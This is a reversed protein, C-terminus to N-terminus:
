LIPPLLRFFDEQIHHHHHWRHAPHRISRFRPLMLSTYLFAQHINPSYIAKTPEPKAPAVPNGRMAGVRNPLAQGQSPRYGRQLSHFTYQQAKETATLIDIGQALQGALSSAFTCGSGHYSDPLRPCTWSQLQQGQHYLTNVVRPTDEHTGTICVYQCGFNMLQAAAAELQTEQSLTRAEQSNPTIIQILPLLQARIASCVNGQMLSQGGGAALVPDLVVPIQPYKLLVQAVAEVIEVNGLLGIKIAAIPMDALVAEAQARVKAGSLPMSELVNRTDQITLCTVVPAAHCNMSALAQIDACLGAGGSPDNGAFVLVTPPPYM